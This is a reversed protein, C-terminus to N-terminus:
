GRGTLEYGRSRKSRCCCCVSDMISSCCTYLCCCPLCICSLCCSLIILIISAAILWLWWQLRCEGDLVSFYMDSHIGLHGRGSGGTVGQDTDCYSLYETCQDNDYCEGGWVTCLSGARRVTYAVYCVLATVM